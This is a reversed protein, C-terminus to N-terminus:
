DNNPAKLALRFGCLAKIHKFQAVLSTQNLEIVEGTRDSILGAFNYPKAATSLSAGGRLVSVSNTPAEKLHKCM